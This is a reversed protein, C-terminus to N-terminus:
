TGTAFRAGVLELVDNTIKEQRAQNEQVRLTQMMREATRTAADMAVLRAAQESTLMQAAIRYLAIFAYETLLAQGLEDAPMYRSYIRRHKSGQAQLEAMNPPLLQEETPVQESLSVYRGYIVRVEALEGSHYRAALTAALRKVLDHLGATSTAGPEEVDAAVGRSALQRVGRRGVVMLLPPGNRALEERREVALEVVNQALKGCLPQESTLVLLGTQGSHSATARRPLADAALSGLARVVLAYYRDSADAAMQARHIRGAAVSRLAHVVDHVTRATEARRRVQELNM